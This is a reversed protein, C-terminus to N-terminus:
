TEEDETETEDLVIANAEITSETGLGALRVAIARGIWFGKWFDADYKM